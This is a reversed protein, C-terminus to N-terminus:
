RSSYGWTTASRASSSCRCPGGTPRPCRTTSATPAIQPCLVGNILSPPPAPAAGSRHEPRREPDLARCREAVGPHLGVAASVFVSVDDCSRVVSARRSSSSPGTSTRGQRWLFHNRPRSGLGVGSTTAPSLLRPPHPRSVVTRCQVVTPVAAPIKQSSALWPTVPNISMGNPQHEDARGRPDLILM